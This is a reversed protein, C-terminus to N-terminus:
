FTLRAALQIVRFSNARVGSISGFAPNTQEGTAFNFTATTNVGQFQTANFANYMEVRVQLNRDNQLGFNKMLTFDHNWYGLSMRADETGRGRGTGQYLVDNPDTLPGPPRICETRYQREFTRESRPLNPDCVIIVRSGGLGGTLEATSAPAGSWNFGFNSWTGGLATTIGSFQWGDLVGRTVVNDGVLRSPSPLMWNYTFKFNHPRSGNRHTNRLRNEEDTRYWDYFTYQETLSGTYNAAWALRNYLRRRIEFQVAHYKRYMDDRFMRKTIAGRGPFNPRIFNAPLVNRTTPDIMNPTPNVLSRPDADNLPLNYSQGVNVAFANRVQNGVYAVDALLRWPLERQVGLSWSHVTIPRTEDQVATGSLPNQLSPANFREDITTWQLNVNQNMVGTFGGYQGDGLRNYSTGFGGRVATRGDGTVDWGFGVRPATSLGARPFTDPLERGFVTGNNIDGSGDVVAGIWPSARLEGTIPNRAVRNAGTCPFVGNACHPQWLQVARAPDWAAPDFWGIERGKDYVVGIHSFRVGLDLTLQRNLRWNDQVFFEPQNFRPQSRIQNDGETYSNLHGLLGNAWGLNTDLPNAPNSDFNYVGANSSLPGPRASREYFFGGKLNHAGRVHTLNISFNHADNSALWPFNQGQGIAISRTNPLANSGGFSMNPLVHNPNNGAFYQRHGPLHNRYDLADWDTQSLPYVDQTAWNTGGIIELVTASSFTHHLTAVYGATNIDYSGRTWPFAFGNGAILAPNTENYYGRGFVEKGLQVRTYFTTGPRVNWDIRVVNDRRLKDTDGAFQYNYNGQTVPNGVLGPDPLPFLHLMQRGMPHIRHQPIVNGAFCGPGGTNVNCPLGSLPDRIHRLVGANNRTQSFDGNRELASPLTSNVLFPDTRPLVDLSYFFFLRDRKRNFETGPILVPGGLTFASNDYRYRPKECLPSTGGTAGCTRRRAWDNTNLAEHRKFYAASGSFRSSGSKTVVIINAGGARGYEAQYNSTQIRVEAISDLSPTVYNAAGFGTDKSSVGDYSLGMFQDRLGNIETGLFANWGPADRARTDVVGPMGQLLGLFDRGRLQTDKIEDARIVGAREGSQTQARLAAAEVTVVEELGGVELVIPPVSVRETASLVIGRQEYIRFGTLTVRLDYTGALLNTIVFLGQGDTLTERTLATATNRVTVTAGPIAGKSADLVSGGIQGTLGQAHAATAAAGPAGVMLLALMSRVISRRV